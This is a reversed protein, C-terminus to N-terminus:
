VSPLIIFPTPCGVVPFLPNATGKGATKSDNRFLVNQLQM